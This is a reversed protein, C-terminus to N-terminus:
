YDEETDAPKATLRTLLTLATACGEAEAELRDAKAEADRAMRALTGDPNQSLRRQNAAHIRLRGVEYVLPSRHETLLRIATSYDRPTLVDLAEKYADAQEQLADADRTHVDALLDLRALQFHAARDRRYETSATLERVLEQLQQRAKTLLKM